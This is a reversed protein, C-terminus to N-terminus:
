WLGERLTPYDSAPKIPRPQLGLQLLDEVSLARHVFCGGAAECHKSCYSRGCNDAVCKSGCSQLQCRRREDPNSTSTTSSAPDSPSADFPGESDSDVTRQTGSAPIWNNCYRYHKPHVENDDADHPHCMVFSRGYNAKKPNVCRRIRLVRKCIKCKWVRKTVPGWRGFRKVAVM